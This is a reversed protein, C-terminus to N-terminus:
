KSIHIRMATYRVVKSSSYQVYAATLLNVRTETLVFFYYVLFTSVTGNIYSFNISVQNGKPGPM